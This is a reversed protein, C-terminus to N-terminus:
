RLIFAVLCCIQAISPWTSNASTTVSILATHADSRVSGVTMASLRTFLPLQANDHEFNRYIDVFVPGKLREM